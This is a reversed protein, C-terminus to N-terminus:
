QNCWLWSGILRKHRAYIIIAMFIFASMISALIVVWKFIYGHHDRWSYLLIMGFIATVLSYISLSVNGSSLVLELQILQNRHHDLPINLYDETHDIYERLTTLKNLTGEVQTCYAELLMELEEVGHDGHIM